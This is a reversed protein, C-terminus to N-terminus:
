GEKGANGVARLIRLPIDRNIKEADSLTTSAERLINYRGDVSQRIAETRFRRLRRCVQELQTAENEM